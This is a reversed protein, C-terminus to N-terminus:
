VDPLEGDLAEYLHLRASQWLRKITRESLGLVDAADRHTLGQYWHLDFVEREKDPLLDIKEHFATWAALKKLEYSSDAVDPGAGDGPPPSHHRRGPGQPGYYHRALDILVRRIQTAALGTFERVSGPSVEKLAGWLKVAAEQSVDEVEEWRAVGPFGKLMKWALRRMRGQACCLLQDRALADGAALRDIWGQLESSGEM